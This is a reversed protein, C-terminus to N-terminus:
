VWVGYGYKIGMSMGKGMVIGNIIVMGMGIYWVWVWVGYRAAARLSTDFEAMVPIYFDYITIYVIVSDIYLLM